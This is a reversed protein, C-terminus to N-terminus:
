NPTTQWAIVLNGSAALQVQEVPKDIARNMLDTFSQVSPDKEWIEIIETDPDHTAQDTAGVRRLFKGTSKQRVVLYKIGQANAIQADVLPAMAAFVRAQLVVRAAEKETLLVAATQERAITAATKSGKPRGAGQRKGGKPKSKSKPRSM